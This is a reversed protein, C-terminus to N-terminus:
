LIHSPAYQEVDKDVPHHYFQYYEKNIIEGAEQIQIYSGAEIQYIGDYLTKENATFGTLLFEKVATQNFSDDPKPAIKDTIIWSAGEKYYFLPISRKRDVIAIAEGQGAQIFVFEGHIENLERLFFGEENLLDHLDEAYYCKGKFLLYGGFYVQGFPFTLEKILTSNQIIVKYNLM